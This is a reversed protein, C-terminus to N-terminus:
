ICIKLKLFTISPVNTIKNRGTMRYNGKGRVAAYGQTSKYEVKSLTFNMDEIEICTVGEPHVCSGSNIYLDNEDHLRPRHSHGTILYTDNKVTWDKLCKEYKQAKKNNRAASTPDNFGNKELPKWLYRVLFRSLKWCVSNLFDAQHGHMMCINRGNEKNELIVSEYLNKKLEMDHNGYIKLFRNQLDFRSVIEYVEKHLVESEKQADTRGYSKQIALNLIIFDM